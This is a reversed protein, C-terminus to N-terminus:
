NQLLVRTTRVEGRRNAAQVLYVGEGLDDLQITLGQLGPV